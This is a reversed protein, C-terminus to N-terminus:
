QGMRIVSEVGNSDVLTLSSISIAKVRYDNFKDGVRLTKGSVIAEPHVPDYLVGQLRPLANSTDITVAQVPPRNSSPIMVAATQRVPITAPAPAPVTVSITAPVTAPVTAPITGSTRTPPSPAAVRAMTLHMFSLSILSGAAVILVFIVVPLIWSASDSERGAPVVPPLHNPPNGSQRRARKLADNILSM